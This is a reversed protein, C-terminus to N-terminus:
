CLTEGKVKISQWKGIAVDTEKRDLLLEKNEPVFIGKGREGMGKERM